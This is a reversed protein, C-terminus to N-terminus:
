HLLTRSPQLLLRKYTTWSVLRLPGQGPMQSLLQRTKAQTISPFTTRCGGGMCEQVTVQCYLCADEHPVLLEHFLGRWPPKGAARISPRAMSHATNLQRCESIHCVPVAGLVHHMQVSSRCAKLSNHWSFRHCGVKAKRFSCFSRLNAHGRRAAPPRVYPSVSFHWLAGQVQWALM